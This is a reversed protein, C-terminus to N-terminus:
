GPPQREMHAPRDTGEEGTSRRDLDDADADTPRVALPAPPPRDLGLHVGLIAAQTRDAVGLKAVISQVHKKVTVEALYLEQRITSYDHGQALLGLVEIERATLRAALSASIAREPIAQRLLGDVARRLLGAQVAAAGRAVSRVANLLMEPPCDRTLYGAAGAGLAEVMHAETAEAPLVIVAMTPHAWMIQRTAELGDMDPMRSDILVVDPELTGTAQVAERGSSVEGVVAFVPADQLLTLLGQREIRDDGALLVRIRVTGVPAGSVGTGVLRMASIVGQELRARIENAFWEREMEQATELLEVRERLRANEAVLPEYAHGAAAEAGRGSTHDHPGAIPVDHEDAHRRGTSGPTFEPRAGADM